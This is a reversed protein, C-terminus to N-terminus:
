LQQLELDTVATGQPIDNMIASPQALLFDM